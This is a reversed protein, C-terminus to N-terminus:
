RINGRCVPDEAYEQYERFATSLPQSAVKPEELSEETSAEKVDQLRKERSVMATAKSCEAKGNGVQLDHSYSLTVYLVSIIKATTNKKQPMM